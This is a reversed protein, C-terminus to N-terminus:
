SRKILYSNSSTNLRLQVCGGDKIYWKSTEFYTFGNRYDKTNREEVRDELGRDKFILEQTVMDKVM